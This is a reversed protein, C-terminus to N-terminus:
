SAAAGFRVRPDLRTYILDVILNLTIILTAIIFVTAEVLPLDRKTISQILDAQNGHPFDWRGVSGKFLVDGVLAM